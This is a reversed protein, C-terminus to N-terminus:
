RLHPSQEFVVEVTGSQSEVDLAGIQYRIVCATPPQQAGLSLAFGAVSLQMGPHIVFDAGAFLLRRTAGFSREGELDNPVYHLSAFAPDVQLHLFPARAAGRGSNTIFVQVGNPEDAYHVASVVLVPRARRGFMDAIQFPEMRMFSQGIRQYYRDEQYRAMHPGGDTAPIYTAVFGRNGELLLSRHEVGPVGPSAAQPTLENLRSALWVADDVGPFDGICDIDDIKRADVGWLVIGGAANSFGSIAKALLKKLANDNKDNRPRGKCDLIQSEAEGQMALVKAATLGLFWERLDM